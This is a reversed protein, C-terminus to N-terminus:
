AECFCTYNVFSFLRFVVVQLTPERNATSDRVSQVEVQEEEVAEFVQPQIMCFMVVMVIGEISSSWCRLCRMSIWNLAQTLLGDFSLM